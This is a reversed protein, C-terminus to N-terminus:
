VSSHLRDFIGCGSKTWSHCRKYQMCKSSLSSLTHVRIQELHVRMREVETKQNKLRKQLDEIELRRATYEAMARPNALHIADIETQKMSIENAIADINAPLKEMKAKMVDTM